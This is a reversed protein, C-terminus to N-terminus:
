RSRNIWPTKPSPKSQQKPSTVKPLKTFKVAASPTAQIVPSIFSLPAPLREPLSM